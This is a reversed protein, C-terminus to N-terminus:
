SFNYLLRYRWGGGSGKQGTPVDVGALIALYIYETVDSDAIGSCINAGNPFNISRTFIINSQNPVVIPTDTNGETLKFTSNQLDLTKKELFRFRGGGNWSSLNQIFFKGDFIGTSSGFNSVRAYILKTDSINGSPVINMSGFDLYQGAGTGLQKIFGHAPSLDARFGSPNVTPDQQIIQVIPFAM